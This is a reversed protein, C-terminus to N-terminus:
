LFRRYSGSDFLISTGTLALAVNPGTDPLDMGRYIKEEKKTKENISISVFQPEANSEESYEVKQWLLSDEGNLHVTDALYIKMNPAILNCETAIYIATLPNDGTFILFFSAVLSLFLRNQSALAKKPKM